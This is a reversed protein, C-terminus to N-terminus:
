VEDHYNLAFYKDGTLVAIQKRLQIRVCVCGNIRMCVYVFERARRVRQMYNMIM